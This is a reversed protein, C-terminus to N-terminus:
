GERTRLRAVIEGLARDLRSANYDAVREAEESKRWAKFVDEWDPVDQEYLDISTPEGPRQRERLYDRAQERYWVGLRCRCFVAETGRKGARLLVRNPVIVRGSSDCTLCGAPEPDRTATTLRKRENRVRSALANRLDARFRPPDNIAVHDTAAIMEAPTFGADAYLRSWESLALLEADSTM